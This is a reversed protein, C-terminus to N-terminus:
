KVTQGEALKMEKVIESLGVTGVFFVYLGAKIVALPLSEPLHSLLLSSTESTSEDQSRLKYRFILVAAVLGEVAHIVLIVKTIKALVLLPAPLELVWHMLQLVLAGLVLGTAGVKIQKQINEAAM